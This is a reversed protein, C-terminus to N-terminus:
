FTSSGASPSYFIFVPILGTSSYIFGGALIIFLSKLGIALARINSAWVALFALSNCFPRLFVCSSVLIIFPIGKGSSIGGAANYAATIPILLALGM